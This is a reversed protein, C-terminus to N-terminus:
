IKSLVSLIHAPFLLMTAHPFSVLVLPPALERKYPAPQMCYVPFCIYSCLYMLPSPVHARPSPVRLPCYQLYQSATLIQINPDPAPYLVKGLFRPVLM